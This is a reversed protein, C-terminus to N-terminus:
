HLIEHKDLGLDESIEGIPRNNKCCFGINNGKLISSSKPFDLVINGTKSELTFIGEM